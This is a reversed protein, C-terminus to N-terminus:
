ATFVQLLLGNARLSQWINEVPNRKPRKAPLHHHQPNLSKRKATALSGAQDILVLVHAGPRKALRCAALDAARGFAM